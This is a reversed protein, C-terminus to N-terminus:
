CLMDCAGEKNYGECKLVVDSEVQVGIRGEVRGDVLGTSIGGECPNKGQALGDFTDKPGVASVVDGVPQSGLSKVSSLLEKKTLGINKWLGLMVDVQSEASLM